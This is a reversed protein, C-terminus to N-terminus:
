FEKKWAEAEDMLKILDATPLMVTLRVLNGDQTVKTSNALQNLEPKENLTGAAVIGALMTNIQGAVEVSKAEINLTGVVHRTTEHLTFGAKSAHQFMQAKADLKGMSSLDAAISLFAQNDGAVMAALEDGAGLHATQGGLVDLAQEVM